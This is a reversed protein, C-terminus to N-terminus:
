DLVIVGRPSRITAVVQASSSQGIHVGSDTFKLADLMASTAEPEPTGLVLSTLSLGSDPLRECPHTASDWQILHPLTGGNIRAGDPTFAFRWRFDARAAPRVVNADYGQTTALQEIAGPTGLCRAVWAVLRPGHAIHERVEATDLGFWRPFDPKGADPDVAIIELYRQHDLNLLTNHTALGDHRGGGVADVGLTERAWVRGQDLSQAAIVIHDLRTATNTSAISV